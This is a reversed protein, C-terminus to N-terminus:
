NKNPLSKQIEKLVSLFVNSFIYKEKAKLFGKLAIENREDDHKLYYEILDIAEDINEYGIVEKDLEYIDKLHTTKFDSILMVGNLPLEYTRRNGFGYESSDHINIGIKSNLYLDPLNNQATIWYRTNNVLINRLNTKWGWQGRLVFRNKFHKKVKFLKENRELTTSSGVFVLDNQRARNFILDQELNQFQSSIVGLPVYSANKAGWKKFQDPMSVKSNYAPTVTFVHDFAYSYPMIRSFSGDPDDFSYFVKYCKLNELFDPHYVNVDLVMFVDFEKLRSSVHEYLKVLHTEKLRYAIDLELASYFYNCYEVHNIFEIEVDLIKGAKRIDNIIGNEVARKSTNLAKTPYSILIRM